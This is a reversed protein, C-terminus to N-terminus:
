ILTYEENAPLIENYCKFAQKISEAAKIKMAREKVTDFYPVGTSQSWERLLSESVRGDLLSFVEQVTFKRLLRCVIDKVEPGYVIFPQSKTSRIKFPRAVTNPYINSSTGSLEMVKIIM